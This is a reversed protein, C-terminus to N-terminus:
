PSGLIGYGRRTTRVFWGPVGLSSETTREPVHKEDSYVYTTEYLYPKESAHWVISRETDGGPWSPDPKFKVTDGPGDHSSKHMAILDHKALFAALKEYGEPDLGVDPLIEELARHIGPPSPNPEPHPWWVGPEHESWGSRCQDWAFFGSQLSMSAHPLSVVLDRMAEFGARDESFQKELEAQTPPATRETGAGDRNRTLPPNWPQLVFLVILAAALGALLLPGWTRM